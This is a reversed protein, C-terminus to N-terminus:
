KLIEVDILAALMLIECGALALKVGIVKFIPALLEL